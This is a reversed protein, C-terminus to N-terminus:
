RKVRPAVSRRGDGVACLIHQARAEKVSHSAGPSPHLTIGTLAPGHDLTFRHVIGGDRRHHRANVSDWDICVMAM